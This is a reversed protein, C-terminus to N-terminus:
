DVLKPGSEWKQRWAVSIEPNRVYPPLQGRLVQLVGKVLNTKGAEIADRTHGVIHSTLVANQLERLPSGAPLPEVVFTDLAVRAIRNQAVADLLAQEEVIAGRSTNVLMATPKMLAIRPADVLNRTRENLACVICIVDSKRLLDDLEAAQVGPPLTKSAINPSHALINAEWNQLRAAIARGIKGFGVLGITRGKLMRAYLETPRPQLNRLLWESRHLDYLLVLILMITLEAM